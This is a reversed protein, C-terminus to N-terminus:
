VRLLAQANYSGRTPVLFRRSGRKKGFIERSLWMQLLRTPFADFLMTQEAEAYRGQGCGLNRLACRYRVELEAHAANAIQNEVESGRTRDVTQRFFREQEVAPKTCLLADFSDSFLSALSHSKVGGRPEFEHVLLDFVVGFPDPESNLALASVNLSM